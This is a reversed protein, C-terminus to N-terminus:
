QMKKYDRFVLNAFENYIIPFKADPIRFYISNSSIFLGDETSGITVLNKSFKHIACDHEWYYEQVKTVILSDASPTATINTIRETISQCSDVAWFKFRSISFNFNNQDIMLSAFLDIRQSEWQYLNESEKYLKNSPSHPLPQYNKYREVIDSVSDTSLKNLEYESSNSKPNGFSLSSNLFLAAGYLPINKIFQRLNM